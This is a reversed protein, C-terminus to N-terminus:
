ECSCSHAIFWNYAKEGDDQEGGDIQIPRLYIYKRRHPPNLWYTICINTCGHVCWLSVLWLGCGSAGVKLNFVLAVLKERQFWWARTRFVHYLGLVWVIIPMGFIRFWLNHHDTLNFMTTNFQGFRTHAYRVGFSLSELITHIWSEKCQLGLSQAMPFITFFWPGIWHKQRRYVNRQLCNVHWITTM